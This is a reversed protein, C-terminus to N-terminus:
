SWCSAAARHRWSLRRAVAYLAAGATLQALAAVGLDAAFWLPARTGGAAFIETWLVVGWPVFIAHGAIPLLYVAFSGALAIQTAHSRTWDKLNRKRSGDPHISETSGCM